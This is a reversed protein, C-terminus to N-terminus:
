LKVESALSDMGSQLEQTRSANQNYEEILQNYRAVEANIAVRELELSNVSQLLQNRAINFQYESTFYNSNARSNFLNISANLSRLDAEFQTQRDILQAELEEVEKKIREAKEYLAIFKSNYGRYLDVIQKRNNFYKSYYQELEGSIDLVETAIIAHLENNAEGPETRAYYDMRNKLETNDVQSYADQLLSDVSEREKDSLREYIAHLLEHAATVQSVGELEENTVDFIFIRGMTYCGLISVNPEQRQCNQNFEQPENVEPQSALFIREAKPTLNLEYILNRVDSTPEFQSIRIYDILYYPYQKQWYLFGVTLLMMIIPLWALKSRKKVIPKM